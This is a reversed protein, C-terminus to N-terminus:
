PQTEGGGAHHLDYLSPRYPPPVDAVQAYCKRFTTPFHRLNGRYFWAMNSDIIFTECRDNISRMPRGAIQALTSATLANAYTDGAIRAASGVPYDRGLRLKMLNSRPDVFPLKMVIQYEALHAAFDYGTTVSPSVFVQPAPARKFLEIKAATDTKEHGIMLASYRSERLVTRMREYSGVHVIGKRDQRAGIIQDIRTIIKRMDEETSNYKLQATPVFRIPMRSIPFPSEYSYFSYEDMGMERLTQETITASYVLVQPIGRLLREETYRGAKVPTLTYHFGHANTLGDVAWLESLNAAEVITQAGSYLRKVAILDPVADPDFEVKAALNDQTARITALHTRFWAAWMDFSERNGTPPPVDVRQVDKKTVTVAVSDCIIDPADHGEDMILLGRKGLGEGKNISIWYAYNTVIHKSERAKTVAARYGCSATSRADCGGVAGEECTRWGGVCKYNARGKVLAVDPFDRVYQDLLPNTATLVASPVDFVRACAMAALSKGTGVPM